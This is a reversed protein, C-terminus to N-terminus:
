IAMIGVSARWLHPSTKHDAPFCRCSSVLHSAAVAVYGFSILVIMGYVHWITLNAGLQRNRRTVSM